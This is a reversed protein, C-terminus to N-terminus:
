KVGKQIHQITAYIACNIFDNEYKDMERVFTNWGGSTRHLEWYPSDQGKRKLKADGDSLNFEQPSSM